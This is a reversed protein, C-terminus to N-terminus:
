QCENVRVTPDALAGAWLVRATFSRFCPKVSHLILVTFRPHADVVAHRPM